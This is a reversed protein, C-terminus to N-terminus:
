KKKSLLYQVFDKICVVILPVCLIVVVWYFTSHIKPNHLLVLVVIFFVVAQVVSLANM